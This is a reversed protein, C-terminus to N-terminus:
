ISSTTTFTLGGFAIKGCHGRVTANQSPGARCSWANTLGLYTFLSDNSADLLVGTVGNGSLPVDPLKNNPLANPPTDWVGVYSPTTTDSVCTIVFLSFLLATLRNRRNM